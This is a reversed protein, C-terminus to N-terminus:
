ITKTKDLFLKEIDFKNSLRNYLKLQIAFTEKMVRGQM